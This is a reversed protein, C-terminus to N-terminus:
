DIFIVDNTLHNFGTVCWNEFGRSGKNKVWSGEYGAYVSYGWGAIEEEKMYKLNYTETSLSALTIVCARVSRDQSSFQEYLEQCKAMVVSARQQDDAM